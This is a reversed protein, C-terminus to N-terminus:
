EKRLEFEYDKKEIGKFEYDLESVCMCTTCIECDTKSYKLILKNDSIEYDGATVQEACNISVYSKIQLESGQWEINKIGLGSADYANISENCPMASFQFQKENSQCGFAFMALFLIIAFRM